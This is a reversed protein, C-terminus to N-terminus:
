SVIYTYFKLMINGYQKYHKMTLFTLFLGNGSFGREYAAM